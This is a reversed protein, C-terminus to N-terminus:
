ADDESGAVYESDQGHDKTHIVVEADGEEDELRDSEAGISSSHKWMDQFRGHLHQFLAAQRYAYSAAGEGYAGSFRNQKAHATWQSSTWFLSMLTRHMEEEVLMVEEKWQRLRAYSKAWEVCLKNYLSEDLAFGGGDVAWWIWLTGRFGEGTKKVLEDQKHKWQSEANEPAEEIDEGNSSDWEEDSEQVAGGILEEAQLQGTVRSRRGLKKRPVGVAKDEPDEM